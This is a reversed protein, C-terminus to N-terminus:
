QQQFTTSNLTKYISRNKKLLYTQFDSALNIWRADSLSLILSADHDPYRAIIQERLNRLFVYSNESSNANLLSSNGEEVLLKYIM